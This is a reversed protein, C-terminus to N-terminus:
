SVKKGSIAPCYETTIPVDDGQAAKVIVDTAWRVNNYTDPDLYMKLLGWDIQVKGPPIVNGNYDEVPLGLEVMSAFSTLEAEKEEVQHGESSYTVGRFSPLCAPNHLLPHSIEHIYVQAPYPECRLAGETIASSVMITDPQGGYAPTYYAEVGPEINRGEVIRVGRKMIGEKVNEIVHCIDTPEVIEALTEETPKTYFLLEPRVRHDKRGRKPARHTFAYNPMSQRKALQWVIFTGGLALLSGGAILWWASPFVNVNVVPQQQQLASIAQQAQDLYKHYPGYGPQGGQTGCLADGWWTCWDKLGNTNYIALAAKACNNYDALWQAQGCPNSSPIGSVAEVQAHNYPLNIQWAGFSTYGNCSYQGSGPDGSGNGFGDEAGAIAIMVVRLSYPGYPTNIPTDPFVNYAAKAVDQLSM